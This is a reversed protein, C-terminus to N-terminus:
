QGKLWECYHLWTPNVKKYHESVLFYEDSTVIKTCVKGTDFRRAVELRVIDALYMSIKNEYCEGKFKVIRNLEIHTNNIIPIPTEM